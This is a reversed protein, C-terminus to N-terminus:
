LMVYLFFYPEVHGRIPEVPGKISSYMEFFQLFQEELIEIEELPWIPSKAISNWGKLPWVIGRNYKSTYM